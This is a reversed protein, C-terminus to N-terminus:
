EDRDLPEPLDEIGMEAACRALEAWAPEEMEIGERTQKEANARSREGPLLIPGFGPVPRRSKAFESLEDLKELFENLPQFEEIQIAQFFVGNVAPGGENWWERGLGNGTLLGGLIEAVLHLGSGKYGGFPLVAGKPPGSFAKFDTTPRGHGDLMIGEPIAEGRGVRHRLEGMSMAATAFDLVIHRDERGPIGFAMPNTGGVPEMSGYSAISNGGVSVLAIGIMGQNAAMEVYDALRGVHGSHFLSVAGVGHEGAKSIALKMAERAAIQGIYFKGDVVATTKGERVVLPRQDLRILGTQIRSIYSPIHAIGHAPYGSLDAQVLMRAVPRAEEETVGAASLLRAAFGLLDAHSFKL